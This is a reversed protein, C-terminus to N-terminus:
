KFVKKVWNKLRYGNQFTTRVAKRQIDTLLPDHTLDVDMQWEERQFPFIQIIPTGQKIVGKFDKEVFFSIHGDSFFNDTDVIADVVKIPIHPQHIPSTFWTSYGPSTSVMWMPHIRLVHDIHTAKNIPYHSIQETSHASIIHEEISMLERPIQFEKKGETTDIYIDVPMKLIYGVSMADFFPQCKKVTIKLTGGELKDDLLAPQKRYWDPVNKYGPEPLPFISALDPYSSLFKVTNM